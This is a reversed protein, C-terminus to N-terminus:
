NYLETGQCSGYKRRTFDNGQGSFYNSIHDCDDPYIDKLIWPEELITYIHLKSLLKKLSRSLTCICSCWRRWSREPIICHTSGGSATELAISHPFLSLNYGHYNNKEGSM